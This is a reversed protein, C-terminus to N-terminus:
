DMEPFRFSSDKWQAETRDILVGDNAESRLTGRSDRYTDPPDRAKSPQRGRAKSPQRDTSPQRRRRLAWMPVPYIENPFGESEWCCVVEMGAEEFLFEMYKRGRTVSSDDQDVWFAETDTVNDKVVVCGGEVLADACKGLWKVLDVDTLHGIVWQIWVVAYGGAKPEFAEMGVAFFRCREAGEGIYEPAAAVLRPSVELLDVADFRKLLVGKTVRGIGAGVDLARGLPLGHDSALAAVFKLSSSVDPPDLSEFGGLVGSVTAACNSEDDWYESAKTYWKPGLSSIYSTLSTVTPLTGGSSLTGSTPSSTSTLHADIRSSLDSSSSFQTM